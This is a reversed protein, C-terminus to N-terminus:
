ATAALAGHRTKYEWRGLNNMVPSSVTPRVEHDSPTRRNIDSVNSSFSRIATAGHELKVNICYKAERLLKEVGNSKRRAIWCTFKQVRHISRLTASPTLRGASPRPHYFHFNKEFADCVEFDLEAGHGNLRVWAPRSCGHSTGKYYFPADSNSSSDGAPFGPPFAEVMESGDTYFSRDDKYTCHQIFGLEFTNNSPAICFVKATMTCKASTYRVKRNGKVADTCSTTPADSSPTSRCVFDVVGTYCVNPYDTVLIKLANLYRRADLPALRDLAAQIRAHPNVAHGEELAEIVQRLSSRQLNFSPNATRIANMM